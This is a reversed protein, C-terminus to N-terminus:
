IDEKDKLINDQMREWILPCKDRLVETRNEKNSNFKRRNKLLRSLKKLGLKCIEIHKFEIVKDIKLNTKHQRFQSENHLYRHM